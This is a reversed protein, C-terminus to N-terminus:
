RWRGDPSLVEVDVESPDADEPLQAVAVGFLEDHCCACCQEVIVQQHVDDRVRRATMRFMVPHGYPCRDCREHRGPQEQAGFQAPLDLLAANTAQQWEHQGRATRWYPTEAQTVAIPFRWRHRAPLAQRRDTADTTLTM